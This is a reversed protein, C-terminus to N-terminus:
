EGVPIKVIPSDDDITLTANPGSRKFRVVHYKRDNFKKLMEGIPIDRKTGM